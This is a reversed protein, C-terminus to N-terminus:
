IGEPGSKKLKIVLQELELDAGKSIELIEKESLEENINIMAQVASKRVELSNDLICNHISDKAEKAKLFGLSGLACARVMSSDDDLLDILKPIANTEKRNALVLSIFGRVNKRPDDLSQILLQFIQNKNLILSSFAEGRVRIDPDDLCDIIKKIIKFDNTTALIELTKIKNESTGSELNLFINDM